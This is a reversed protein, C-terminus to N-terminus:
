GAAAAPARPGPPRGADRDRRLHCRVPRAM